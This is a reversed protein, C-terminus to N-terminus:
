LILIQLLPAGTRSVLRSEGSVWAEDGRRSRLFSLLSALRVRGLRSEESEDRGISGGSGKTVTVYMDSFLRTM